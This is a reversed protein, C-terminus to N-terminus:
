KQFQAVFAQLDDLAVDSVAWFTMADHTWHLINYGARMQSIPPANRGTSPWVFLNIYHLRRQYVLAAVPRGDMYDLRGGMLPFGASALDVVPPAFDLKGDFWPKVTHQDTSVVDSLHSAMLSRIHGAVIEGAISDDHSAGLWHGGLWNTVLSASAFLVLLILAAAPVWSWSWHLSFFNVRPKVAAQKRLMAQVRNELDRPARYYPVHERIASRLELASSRAPACTACDELHSELQVNREVDLEGDLYADILPRAEECRM